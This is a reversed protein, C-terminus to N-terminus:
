LTVVSGPTKVNIAPNLKGSTFFAEYAALAEPDATLNRTVFFEAGKDTLTLGQATHEFNGNNTHYQVARAGIIKTAVSKAIPAGDLMGSLGLFAATHAALLSGARPRAFDQVAFRIATKVAGADGKRVTKGGKAAPKTSGGNKRQAKTTASANAPKAILQDYM